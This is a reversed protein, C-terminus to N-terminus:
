YMYTSLIHYTGVNFIYKQGGQDPLIIIFSGSDIDFYLKILDSESESEQSMAMVGPSESESEAGRADNGFYTTGSFSQALIVDHDMSGNLLYQRFLLLDEM